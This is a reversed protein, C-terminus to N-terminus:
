RERVLELTYEDCLCSNVRREVRKRSALFLVIYSARLSDWVRMIVKLEVKVEEVEVEEPAARYNCGSLSEGVEKERERESAPFNRYVIYIYCVCVCVAVVRCQFQEVNPGSTRAYVCM